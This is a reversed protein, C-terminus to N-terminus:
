GNVIEELRFNVNRKRGYKDFNEIPITKYKRTVEQRCPKTVHTFKYSGHEPYREYEENTIWIYSGDARCVYVCAYYAKDPM